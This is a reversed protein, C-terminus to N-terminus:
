ALLELFENRPLLLSATHIVLTHATIFNALQQRVQGSADVSCRRLDTFMYRGAGVTGRMQLLQLFSHRQEIFPLRGFWRCIEVSAQLRAQAFFHRVGLGCSPSPKM